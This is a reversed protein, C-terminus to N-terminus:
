RESEDLPIKAYRQFNAMARNSEALSQKMARWEPNETLIENARDRLWIYINEDVINIQRTEIEGEYQLIKRLLSGLVGGSEIPEAAPIYDAYEDFQDLTLDIYEGNLMVIVHSHVTSNTVERFTESGQMFLIGPEGKTQCEKLYKALCNSALDCSGNPFNELACWYCSARCAKPKKRAAQKLAQHFAQIRFKTEARM